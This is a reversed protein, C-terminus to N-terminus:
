GHRPPAEMTAQGRTTLIVRAQDMIEGDEVIQILGDVLADEWVSHRPCTSRWASMTEAYNRPRQSIWTLFERILAESM